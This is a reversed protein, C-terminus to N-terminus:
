GIYPIVMMLRSNIHFWLQEYQGIVYKYNQTILIHMIVVVTMPCYRSIIKKYGLFQGGQDSYKHYWLCTGM